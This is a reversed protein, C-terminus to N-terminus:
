QMDTHIHTHSSLNHILNYWLADNHNRATVSHLQKEEVVTLIQRSYMYHRTM